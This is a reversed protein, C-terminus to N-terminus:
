WTVSNGHGNTPDINLKLEVEKIEEDKLASQPEPSPANTDKGKHEREM